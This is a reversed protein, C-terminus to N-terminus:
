AALEEFTLLKDRYYEYQQRRAEAEAPLAAILDSMLVDFRNLLDAIRIQETLPPLAFEFAGIQRASIHPVTNGTQSQLVHCTFQPSSIICGLFRQDLVKANARLRAVRQVLLAPLANDSIPAWKLGAPIWPRDMALVIDGARLEYTDLADGSVRAWRKFDKDKLFGQGINDGRVLVTETDDDAFGSSKFPFGVLIDAADGLRVTRMDNGSGEYISRRYHQYQSRRVGLEAELELSLEAQLETFQDLMRVIERQVETPPLPIQLRALGASSLRKVKARAVFAEKAKNFAYSQMVYVAFKPDLSSRFIFCDDHVAVQETGLWAVAKGVDQVTEGVAAIIVDGPQAFRLTPALDSRVHSITNSTAVGYDTYIEGYHISPLGDDVRDAKTFRRGRIFVGVEGLPKIPVGEPALEKILDEIRSV